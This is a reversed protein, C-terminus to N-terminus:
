ILHEAIRQLIVHDQSIYEMNIWYGSNGACDVFVLSRYLSFAQENTQAYM